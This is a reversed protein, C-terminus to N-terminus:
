SESAGGGQDPAPDGNSDAILPQDKLLFDTCGKGGKAKLQCEEIDECFDCPCGGSIIHEIAKYLGRIDASARQNFDELEEIRKAALRASQRANM